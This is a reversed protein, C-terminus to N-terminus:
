IVTNHMTRISFKTDAGDRFGWSGVNEFKFMTFYNCIGYLNINWSLNLVNGEASPSKRRFNIVM